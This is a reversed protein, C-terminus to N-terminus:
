ADDVIEQLGGQTGKSTQFPLDDNDHAQSKGVQDVQDVQEKEFLLTRTICITVKNSGTLPFSYVFFFFNIRYVEQESLSCFSFPHFPV